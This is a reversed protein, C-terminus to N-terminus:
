KKVMNDVLARISKVASEPYTYTPVGNDELNKRLVETFEGGTSVVVIPKQHMRNAEIIVDVIDTTVLPTQYLIIVLLVDVNEDAMTADIAMKYRETTADGVLDMPNGILVRKPFVKKLNKVTEKSLEALKLNNKIMADTSLVGYGGGNTIIQVRDGKPTISKELMKAFDFMEELSSAQIVGAQKFVGSYIEASGALAGTHSIVAKNGEETIGGKIVIIPKKKSIKRAVDLFKRGDKVGEIYMCVVSTNPDSGVYELLDTEDIDSANGYSVFKSFGFGQTTALDLIASGVAGSQCIFSIGGEKPRKLRYRPLFLSDFRSFGDFTGLCNPGIMRMKYKKVLKVLRDELKQEGIEAFGSSIVILNKIKKKGCEQMVKPVVEAPVAVVALDVIEPIDKVSPYVKQNLIAEANPNVPYIKGSYGADLLNRFIVHGVKNPDRSVGIVAVSSPNFFKDM